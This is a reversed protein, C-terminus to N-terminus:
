AAVVKLVTGDVGTVRVKAGAPLDPGEASWLSDGVKVRGRGNVIAEELMFVRGVYQQGRVNLSSRDSVEVGYRLVLRAFIALGVAAIGFLVLQTLFTTPLVLMAGAVILAAVGFWLLFVGPLVTELVFLVGAAILWFWIGLSEIMTM